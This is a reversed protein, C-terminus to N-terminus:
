HHGINKLWLLSIVFIPTINEDVINYPKFVINKNHFRILKKRSIETGLLDIKLMSIMNKSIVEKIICITVGNNVVKKYQFFWECLYIIIFCVGNMM